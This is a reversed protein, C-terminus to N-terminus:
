WYLLLSYFPSSLIVIIDCGFTVTLLSGAVRGTPTSACFIRTTPCIVAAAVTVGSVNYSPTAFASKLLKPSPDIILFINFAMNSVKSSLPDKTRGLISAIGILSAPAATSAVEVITNDSTPPAM